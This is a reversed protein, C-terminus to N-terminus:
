IPLRFIQLLSKGNIIKEKAYKLAIIFNELAATENDFQNYLLGKLLYIRAPYRDDQFNKSIIELSDIYKLSVQLDQNYQNFVYGEALYKKDKKEKRAKQLYYKAIIKSNEVQNGDKYSYFINELEEYSYKRLTDLNDSQSYFLSNFGFLLLIIFYKLNKM